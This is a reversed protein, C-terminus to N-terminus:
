KQSNPHWFRNNAIQMYYDIFVRVRHKELGNEYIFKDTKTM